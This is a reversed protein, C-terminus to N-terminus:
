EYIRSYNCGCSSSSNCNRICFFDNNNNKWSYINYIDMLNIFASGARAGLLKDKLIRPYKDSPLNEWDTTKLTKTQLGKMVKGDIDNKPHILTFINILTSSDLAIKVKSAM